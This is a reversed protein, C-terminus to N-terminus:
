AINTIVVLPTHTEETQISTDLGEALAFKAEGRRRWNEFDTLGLEERQSAIAMLRRGEAFLRHREWVHEAQSLETLKNELLNPEVLSSM